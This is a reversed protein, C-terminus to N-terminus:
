NNNTSSPSDVNPTSFSLLECNQWTDMTQLGNLLSGDYGLTTSGMFLFVMMGYLKRLEPQKWFPLTSGQPAEDGHNVIVVHDADVKESAM